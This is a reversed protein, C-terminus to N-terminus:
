GKEEKEMAKLDRKEQKCEAEIQDLDRLFERLHVRALESAEDHHIGRWQGNDSETMYDMLWKHFAWEVYKRSVKKARKGHPPVYARLYM